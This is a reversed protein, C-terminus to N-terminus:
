AEVEWIVVLDKARMIRYTKELVLEIDRVPVDLSIQYIGHENSAIVKHMKVELRMKGAAFTNPFSIKLTCGTRWSLEVSEKVLLAISRLSQDSLRSSLDNMTSTSLSLILVSLALWAVNELHNELSESPLEYM